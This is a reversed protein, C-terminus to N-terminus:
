EHINSARNELINRENKTMYAWSEANLSLFPNLLMIRFTVVQTDNIKVNSKIINVVAETNAIVRKNVRIYLYTLIRNNAENNDIVLSYMLRSFFRESEHSIEELDHINVKLLNKM